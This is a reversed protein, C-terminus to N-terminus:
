SKKRIEAIRSPFEFTYQLFFRTFEVLESADEASGERDHVADNGLHRIHNAWEYLIGSVVAKNKLDEIRRQLTKGEGGLEKVASELVTRCGAVIWHSQKKERLMAQLDLFDSNIAAPLSPHSYLPEAEPWIHLIEPPPGDYLKKEHEVHERLAYLYDVDARLELLIPRRCSVCYGAAYIGAHRINQPACFSPGVTQRKKIETMNLESTYESVSFIRFGRKEGCHPCRGELFLM